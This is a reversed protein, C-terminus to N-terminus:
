SLWYGGVPKPSQIPTEFFRFGPLGRVTAREGGSVHMCENLSAYMRVDYTRLFMFVYFCVYMMCVDYMCVYMCVYTMCVYLVYMGTCVRFSVCCLLEHRICFVGVLLEFCAGTMGSARTHLSSQMRSTPAARTKLAVEEPEDLATHVFLGGSTGPRSASDSFAAFWVADPTPPTPTHPALVLIQHM